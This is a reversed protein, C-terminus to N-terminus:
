LYFEERMELFSYNLLIGRSEKRRPLPYAVFSYDVVESVCFSKLVGTLYIVCTFLFFEKDSVYLCLLQVVVVTVCFRYYAKREDM